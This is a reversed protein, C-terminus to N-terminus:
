VKIGLPNEPFPKDTIWENLGYIVFNSLVNCRLNTDSLWDVQVGLVNRGDVMFNQNSRMMQGKYRMPAIYACLEKPLWNHLAKPATWQFNNLLLLVRDDVRRLLVVADARQTVGEPVACLDTIDYWGTDQVSGNESVSQRLIKTDERLSKIDQGVAKIFDLLNKM